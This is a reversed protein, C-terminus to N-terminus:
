KKTTKTTKQASSLEYPRAPVRFTRREPAIQERRQAVSDLDYPNLKSSTIGPAKKQM